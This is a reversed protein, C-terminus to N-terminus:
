KAVAISRIQTSLSLGMVMKFSWPTAMTRVYCLSCTQSIPLEAKVNLFMFIKLMQGSASKFFRGNTKLIKVQYVSM